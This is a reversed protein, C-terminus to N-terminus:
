GRQAMRLIDEYVARKSDKDVSKVRVLFGSAIPRHDSIRCEYRKYYTQEVGGGRFLIRDCWAPTRQKESTDYQDTGPDYKFTPAFNLAGEQFSKLAFLSNTARQVLLQDYRMLVDWNRQNIAAIVQERPLDIRYNLDGSWIVMEHDLIMSGDGGNVFVGDTQDPCERFSMDKIITATDNNRASIEKQHAALHCNVFCFSSDEIILRTAIAGKNGHYGKLGTKTMECQVERVTFKNDTRVMVFQFLGVLQRSEVLKYDARNGFTYRVVGMLKNQWLKFRTDTLSKDAKKSAGKLFSKATNKKSELDVIEQMGIVILDPVDGAGYDTVWNQLFDPDEADLDAPKNSDINWSCILVKVVRYSCFQSERIKLENEVWDRKLQADWIRIQGQDSLSLIRIDSQNLESTNQVMDQVPVSRYARFEKLVSWTPNTPPLIDFVQIKGTLYGAWCYRNGVVMVSTIRHYGGAQIVRKKEIGNVNFPSDWVSIKGDDHGVICQTSGPIAALSSINGLSGVDTKQNFASEADPSNLELVRGAATWLRGDQLSASTQRVGIRRSIPRSQLSFGHFGTETEWIRLGGSDDLTWLQDKARLMHSVNSTHVGARQDVIEGTVTNLAQLEGRELAFWLLESVDFTRSGPVTPVFAMTTAKQDPAFSIKQTYEGTQLSWVRLHETGITCVTDGSFAVCRVHGKSFLDTFPLGEAVPPRRNTTGSEPIFTRVGLPSQFGDELGSSSGSATEALLRSPSPRAPIPPPADPSNLSVSSKRDDGPFIRNLQPSSSGSFKALSVPRPPLKPKHEDSAPIDRPSDDVFPDKSPSSPSGSSFPNEPSSPPSISVAPQTSNTSLSTFNANPRPPPVPPPPRQVPSRPRPSKSPSPNPHTPPHPQQLASIKSFVPSASDAPTSVGSGLKPAGADSFPNPSTQANVASVISAVSLKRPSSSSSSSLQSSNTSKQTNALSNTSNANSQRNSPPKPPPQKNMKVAIDGNLSPTTTLPPFARSDGSSSLQSTFPALMQKESGLSVSSQSLKEFASALARVKPPSRAPEDDDDNNPM